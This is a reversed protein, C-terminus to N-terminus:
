KVWNGSISLRSGGGKEENGQRRGSAIQRVPVKAIVNVKEGARPASGISGEDRYTDENKDVALSCTGGDGSVSVSPSVVTANNLTNEKM